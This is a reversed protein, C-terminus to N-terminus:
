SAVPFSHVPDSSIGTGGSVEQANQLATEKAKQAKEYELDFMTLQHNSEIRGLYISNSIQDRNFSTMGVYIELTKGVYSKHLEFTCELANRKFGGTLGDAKHTEPCYVVLMVQDSYKADLDTEKLWRLKLLNKATLEITPQNMVPLNGMSVMVKSYDIGFNPYTGTVAQKFVISFAVSIETKQVAENKFGVNIFPHFPVLFKNVYKMKEQNAIQAPTRPKKTKKSVQRIYTIDKWTGGIVAGIKGSFPGLIGSTTKAM